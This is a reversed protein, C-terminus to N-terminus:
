QPILEKHDNYEPRVGSGARLAGLRCSGVGATVGPTM